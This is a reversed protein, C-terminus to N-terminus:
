EVFVHRPGVVGSTYISSIPSTGKAWPLWGFIGAASEVAIISAVWQRALCMAVVGVSGPHSLTSAWGVFACVVLIGLISLWGESRAVVAIWSRVILIEPVESCVLWVVPVLSVIEM